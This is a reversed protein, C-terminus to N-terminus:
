LYQKLQDKTDELSESNDIVVRCYKRFTDDSSQSEMINDIKEDSYGRSKKLRARRVNEDAYIYWLEDVIKDYHDEILLAAEIFFWDAGDRKADSIMKKIRKKVAPHVIANVKKLVEENGDAFVKAAMKRSDIEGDDGIVDEGLLDVLPKFCVEGRQELSRALDDAKVIVCNCMKDIMGLVESKGAGVGGTIGIVKM